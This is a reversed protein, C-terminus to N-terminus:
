FAGELHDLRLLAHNDDLTVGIADFRLEDARPRDSRELLWRAAMARVKGQKRPHVSELPNWAASGARGSRLKRTKVECFVITTDQLAIIDLEGGRTRFNREVIAYGHRILHEAALQEGIAGLEQRADPAKTAIDAAKTAANPDTTDNM